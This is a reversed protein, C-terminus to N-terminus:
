FLKKFKGDIFVSNISSLVADPLLSFSKFGLQRNVEQDASKGLQMTNELFYSLSLKHITFTTLFGIDLNHFRLELPTFSKPHVVNLGDQIIMVKGKLKALKKVSSITTQPRAITSNLVDVNVNNIDRSSYFALEKILTNKIYVPSLITSIGHIKQVGVTETKLSDVFIDYFSIFRSNAHFLGDPKFLSIIEARTDGSHLKGAVIQPAGAKYVAFKVIRELHSTKNHVATMGRYARLLQVALSKPYKIADTLKNVDLLSYKSNLNRTSLDFTKLNAKLSLTSEKKSVLQNMAIDNCMRASVNKAEITECFCESAIKQREFRSLSHEMVNSAILGNILKSMLNEKITIGKAFAVNGGCSMSVDNKFALTDMLGGLNYRQNFITSFTDKKFETTLLSVSKVFNNEPNQSQLMMNKMFVEFLNAEFFKISLTRCGFTQIKLFTLDVRDNTKVAAILQDRIKVNNFKVTKISNDILFGASELKRVHLQNKFHVGRSKKQVFSRWSSNSNHEANLKRVLLQKDQFVVSSKLHMIPGKLPVCERASHFILSPINDKFGDVNGEIFAEEFRVRIHGQSRNLSSSLFDKVNQQSLLTTYINGTSLQTNQVVFVSSLIEQKSLLTWFSLAIRQPVTQDNLMISSKPTLRAVNKMRLSGQVRISGSYIQALDSTRTGIIHNRLTEITKSLGVRDDELINLNRMVHVSIIRTPVLFTINENLNKFCVRIRGEVFNGSNALAVTENLKENNILKTTLNSTYFNAVSCDAKISQDTSTTLLDSVLSDMLLNTTLSTTSSADQILCNGRVRSREFSLFVNKLLSDLVVGNLIDLHLNRLNVQGKFIYENPVIEWFNNTASKLMSVNVNNVTLATTITQLDIKELFKEGRIM